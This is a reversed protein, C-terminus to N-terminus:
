LSGSLRRRRGWDGARYLDTGEHPRRNTHVEMHFSVLRLGFATDRIGFSSSCAQFIVPYIRDSNCRHGSRLGMRDATFRLKINNTALPSAADGGEAICAWAPAFKSFTCILTSGTCPPM